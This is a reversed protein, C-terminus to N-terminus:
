RNQIKSIQGIIEARVRQVEPDNPAFEVARRSFFDAEGVRRANQDDTQSLTKLALRAFARANTPDLKIAELLSERTNEGIRREIYEPVSVTSFPSITRQNRDAFLWRAWRSYLDQATSQRVSARVRLFEREPVTELLGQSNIRKQSFVEALEPLWHPVPMLLSPVDWVRATKDRSATVVRQGDPSFQATQVEAEHKLPETLSQGTYADWVRATKDRSATVVRQGDPSFQATQVEAEHKLAETL